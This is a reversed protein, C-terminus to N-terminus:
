QAISWFNCWCISLFHYELLGGGWSCKKDAQKQNKPPNQQAKKQPPPPPLKLYNM